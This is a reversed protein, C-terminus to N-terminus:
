VILRIMGFLVTPSSLFAFGLGQQIQLVNFHAQKTRGM